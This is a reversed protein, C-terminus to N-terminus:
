RIFHLFTVINHMAIKDFVTDHRYLFENLGAVGLFENLGTVRV